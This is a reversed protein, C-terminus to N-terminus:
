GAAVETVEAALEVGGVWGRAYPYGGARIAERVRGQSCGVKEAIDAIRVPEKAKEIAKCIAEGKKGGTGAHKAKTWVAVESSRPLRVETGDTLTLVVQTKTTAVEAVSLRVEAGAEVETTPITTLM